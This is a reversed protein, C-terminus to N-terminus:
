YICEMMETPTETTEITIGAGYTHEIGAALHLRRYYYQHYIKVSKM